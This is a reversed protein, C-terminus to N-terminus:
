LFVKRQGPYSQHKYRRTKTKFSSLIVWFMPALFLAAVFIGIVTILTGNIRKKLPPKNMKRPKESSM